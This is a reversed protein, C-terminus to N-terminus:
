HPVMINGGGVTETNESAIRNMSMVDIVNGDKDRVEIWFQDSGRGPEGYDEVYVLFEHNGEPEEWDKDKYTCKGGFSAWGFTPDESEGLSLGYLANSKVRYIPGSGGDLHRILLLNGQVKTAKKNYKMTFGFNTKETTGPWYFWGGGTTFGLSPDYVVMVDEAYGAYYGGGVTVQVSYTNVPVNDFECTVPLEADYGSGTAPGVTCIGDVPGGPGVPVLSTSVQALSIDGSKGSEPLDPEKESVTVALSFPGSNGGKEAVRVSVPNEGDFAATTDEPVVNIVLSADATGGDEDSATFRLTYNGAPVGITGALTITCRRIGNFTFCRDYTIVLNEPLGSTFGGGDASWEIETTIDDDAVDRARFTIERHPVDSYQITLSSPTAEVWPVVNTVLVSATDTDSDGHDDTVRLGVTFTGNDGYVVDTTIGTADDYEGDDDLDWEYLVINNDPDYSASADLTIPEGENGEYPGDAEATPPAGELPAVELTEEVPLFDERVVLQTTGDFVVYEEEQGESDCHGLYFEEHVPVSISIVKESAVTTSPLGLIAVIVFFIVIPKATTAMITRGKTM